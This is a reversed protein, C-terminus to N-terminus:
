SQPLREIGAVPGDTRPVPLEPEPEADGGADRRAVEAALQAILAPFSSELAEGHAPGIHDMLAKERVTRPAGFRIHTLTGTPLPEFELTHLVKVPGGPTSLVTQDTV